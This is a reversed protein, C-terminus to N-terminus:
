EGPGVVTFDLSNSLKRGDATCIAGTADCDTTAPLVIEVEANSTPEVTITWGINSGKVQRQAKKMTGGVVTFAHDRLTKYSLKFHESFRIQFTFEDTGNHSAPNNELIVTIPEPAGAVSASAASTLSEENGADDTFTVQVKITKGEDTDVLTYSSGAADQVDTDASGDNRIWQYSYSVNTLGDTDAIGSTSATLTKRVQVTGSITPAGTAPSNPRAEVAATATSTLTEEHGADDTFTVQVKITKGADGDVLTYGSGAADQVDTDASGDNRIWQYSYSVNTLGDTDAIGSTSATLTERVQVTGSITPAGTAPSNPRAEVAATAAGTLTEENGADDTFTVQVKITKGADGDVLAYTSAAADAIDSDSTGENAIWQYTYSANTTGDSDSIGSTLATLTEGVQVTGSITPSGTAPTNEQQQSSQQSTPGSVTLELRNSLKRGDGTCIAGNATCVTTIPLVITVDANSTPNIRTEWRTNSGRVLRRAEQVEGGTVTFAHDRLTRYSFGELNESFRLEFTFEAQGDHSAPESHISATLPTLAAATNNTVQQGTFSEAPNDSLDKLRAAAEDSPVTYSVTVADTSTVASALTLTVTSGSIAVSNVGRQNSGVNVTFTAAAPLPTGTLGESFTLTLTAGDVTGSSVTPATTERPTGSEESSASSDGVTNVAFVRFTYEVGDTLGSVTHSTGAVTTESVDAPTDWSDAAEKWQVKYGTVDSGGNSDPAGWSVDLKGTDNVSVSLSGPAVPVTATVETTAASTLTEENQADDTFTVKVKITKGVDGSVLTYTSATADAIDSDSTGDNRVWQYTYSANTLGDTDAIGTTLSTLTQGVQTTGSITPSGTAASNEQQQSTPAARKVIVEYTFSNIGQDHEVSVFISSYGEALAVQHGDTDADADESPDWSIAYGSRATANLTIQSSSDPVDLVSYLFGYNNFAPGLTGPSVTLSTLAPQSSYTGAVPREVSNETASPLPVEGVLRMRDGCYVQAVRQGSLPFDDMSATLQTNTSATTGLTHVSTWGSESKRVLYVRYDRYRACEGTDHWSMNYTSGASGSDTIEVTIYSASSPTGPTDNHEPITITRSTIGQDMTPPNEAQFYSDWEVKIDFTEDAEAREDDVILIPVSFQYQYHTIVGESSVPKLAVKPVPFGLSDGIPSGDDNSSWSYSGTIRHGEPFDRHGVRFANGFPIYFDEEQATGLEPIFNLNGVYDHPQKPGDTTVTVTVTVVDGEQPQSADVTFAATVAPVDNDKVTSSSSGSQSSLEYGTGAVVGVTVTSHEEWDQDDVTPVEIRASASGDPFVVESSGESAEPVMDGGAESVSVTVTLSQSTNGTRALIFPMTYGEKADSLGYVGVTPTPTGPPSGARTVVVDYTGSIVADDHFSAMLIVSVLNAGHQLAVQHGAVNPQRDPPLVRSAFRSEWTTSQTVTVYTVERGVSGSYSTLDPDFEGIAVSAGNPDTLSLSKLNPKNVDNDRVLTSAFSGSNNFPPIRYGTGKVLTVGLHYGGTYLSDDATEHNVIASASGAPFEVEVRKLIAVPDRHPFIDILGTDDSSWIDVSVTLAASVDGSRTLLFPVTSGEQATSLSSSSIYNEAGPTASGARNIEVTYVRLPEDVWFSYAGILILNRGHNLRVNRGEVEWLNDDSGYDGPTLNVYVGSDTEPRATVTVREVTSAVDGSYTLVAPDFTGLDIATGNEDTISLSGLNLTPERNPTAESQAWILTPSAVGIVAASLAMITLTWIHGTGRRVITHLTVVLKTM